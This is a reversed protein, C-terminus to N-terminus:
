GIFLTQSGVKAKDVDLHKRKAVDLNSQNVEEILQGLIDFLSDNQARYSMDAVM